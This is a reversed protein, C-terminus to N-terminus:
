FIWTFTLLRFRCPLESDDCEDSDDNDDNDHNDDNDDDDDDHDDDGHGDYDFFIWTFTLLLFRCPLECGEAVTAMLVWLVPHIHYSKITMMIMMILMMMMMMIMMLMIVIKLMMM